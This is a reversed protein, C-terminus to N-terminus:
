YNNTVNGKKYQLITKAISNDNTLSTLKYVDIDKQTIYSSKNSIKVGTCSPLPTTLNGIVYNMVDSKILMNDSSIGSKMNSFECDTLNVNKTEFMIDIGICESSNSVINDFKCNTININKASALSVCRTHAGGYSNFNSGPHNQWMLDPLSIGAVNELLQPTFGLSGFNKIDNIVCNNMSVNYGGDLKFGIVGKNVHFMSDGNFVLKIPLETFSINGAIWEFLEDYFNSRTTNLPSNILHKYKHVVAQTDAIVNGIYKPYNNSDKSITLLELDDNKKYMNFIQFVAGVSDNVIGGNLNDIGVIENINGYHKNLSVQEFYINKPGDIINMDSPFGNVAVGTNNILFGYSNGDVIGLNNHFLKYYKSPHVKTFSHSPQNDKNYEGTNFNLWISNTNDNWWDSNNLIGWYTTNISNFLEEYIEKITKHQHNIEITNNSNNNILSSIYSRQFRAASFTGLVPVDLRSHITKCNELIIDKCGNLACPSVEYDIFKLDKLLVSENNNGHIHHHSSRGITGNIVTINTASLIKTAFDHPGQKPIFPSSALELLSFFRQQLAHEKSQEIVKCNLDLTIDAGQIVIAAFFGIGFAAGSLNEVDKYNNNLLNQPTRTNERSFQSSMVDSSNYPTINEYQKDLYQLSNPNFTINEQLIYYGPENLIVTGKEFMSQKLYTPEYTKKRINHNDLLVKKLDIYNM